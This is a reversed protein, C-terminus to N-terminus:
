AININWEENDPTFKLMFSHDVMETTKGSSSKEQYGDNQCTKSESQSLSLEFTNM